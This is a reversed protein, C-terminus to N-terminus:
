GSTMKPPGTYKMKSLNHLQRASKDAIIMAKRDLIQNVKHDFKEQNFPYQDQYDSIEDLQKEHHVKSLGQETDLTLKKTIANEM